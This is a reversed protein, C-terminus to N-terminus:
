ELNDLVHKQRDKSLDILVKMIQNLKDQDINKEIALKEAKQFVFKERSEDYVDMDLYTKAKVISDALSTREYIINILDNDFKDIKERSSKLVNQAEEESKFLNRKTEEKM